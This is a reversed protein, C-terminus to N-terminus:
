TPEMVGRIDIVDEIAIIQNEITITKHLELDMLSVTGTITQYLGGSGFADNEPNTCPAFFTLTIRPASVKQRKAKQVAQYLFVLKRDLTSNEEESLIIRKGYLIEKDAVRESFGRLADFPAFIKARRQCSMKPHKIGFRSLKDHQPRGHLLTKLYPFNDPLPMYGLIPDGPITTNYIPM